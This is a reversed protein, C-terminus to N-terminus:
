RAPFSLALVWTEWSKKFADMDGAALVRKLSAFGTPDEAAHAHFDKYFPVLLDHEQLYYCLYRAQGYNSGPDEDYFEQRTTATFARFSPVQGARIARQLGPLRWNTYGHIHGREEGSQEYLSGLGENFWAPCGPFNAEVFPHVIEHVLTGGGTALNMILAKHDSSYFGYPTTPREGFLALTNSEYSAADKFLWVDLLSAPDKGFFDQKLMAAAWRVTGQSARELAAPSLDGVVVFPPEIRVTFRQGVRERLALVHQAYDAPSFGQRATPRAMADLARPELRLRILPWSAGSLSLPWLRLFLSRPMRRYGGAAEAPEQYVVEDREADYGVILRFHETTHPADSYHMCVISMIGRALDDHLAQFAAELGAPSAATPIWVPGPDFGIRELAAELEATAVGRGLAPDLGSRNFIEDQDLPHGLKGLAMSVCAEGCFDPKQLVHPVGEILVSTRPHGTPVALAVPRPPAPEEALPPPLTSQPAPGCAALLSALL